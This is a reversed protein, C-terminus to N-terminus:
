YLGMKIKIDLPSFSYVETTGWMYKLTLGKKAILELLEQDEFILTNLVNDRYSDSVINGLGSLDDGVDGLLSLANPNRLLSGVIAQEPSTDQYTHYYVTNGIRSYRDSNFEIYNDIQSYDTYSSEGLGGGYILAIVILAIVAIIWLHRKKKPRSSSKAASKVPQQIENTSQEKKSKDQNPSFLVRVQEKYEEESLIGKDRLDKLRNLKAKQEASMEPHNSDGLIKAKEQNFEEQSLVGSDLLYKLRKLANYKDEHEM